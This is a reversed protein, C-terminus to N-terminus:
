AKELSPPTIDQSKSEQVPPPLLKREAKKFADSIHYHALAAFRGTIYGALQHLKYLTTEEFPIIEPSPFQALRREDVKNSVIKEKVMHPDLIRKITMMAEAASIKPKEGTVDEIMRAYKENSAEIDGVVAVTLATRQEASNNTAIFKGNVLTVLSTVNEESLLETAELLQQSSRHYAMFSHLEGAMATKLFSKKQIKDVVTQDRVNGCQVFHFDDNPFEKQLLYLISAPNQDSIPDIYQGNLPPMIGPIASAALAIEMLRADEGVTSYTATGDANNLKAIRKAGHKVDHVGVFINGEYEGLTKNDMVQFLAAKLNSINFHRKLEGSLNQTVFFRGDPMSNPIADMYLELVKRAPWEHLCMATIVGGSDAIITPFIEKIRKGTMEEIAACKILGAM